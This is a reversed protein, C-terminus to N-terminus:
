LNLNLRNNLVTLGDVANLKVHEEPIGYIGNERMAPKSYIDNEVIDASNIRDKWPIYQNLIYPNYGPLIKLRDQKADVKEDTQSTISRYIAIILVGGAILVLLNM